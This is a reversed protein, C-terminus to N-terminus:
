AAAKHQLLENQLIAVREEPSCPDDSPLEFYDPLSDIESPNDLLYMTFDGLQRISNAVAEENTM